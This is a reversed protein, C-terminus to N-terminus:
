DLIIEDVYIQVLLIYEKYKKLFLTIDVKERQFKNECLFTSLTEYWARPAQKIGYIAKDLRYVHESHEFDEFGPPKKVYLEEQLKENLFASKVDMLYVKLGQYTAYAIFMIIVVLGLKTESPLEM